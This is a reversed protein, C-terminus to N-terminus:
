EAVEKYPEPPDMWAIVNSMSGSGHWHGDMYYARNVNLIGKKSKCTVLKIEEDRREGKDCFGDDPVLVNPYGRGTCFDDADRYKCDKCRIIEPEASAELENLPCAKCIKQRIAKPMPALPMSCLDDCMRKRISDIKEQTM